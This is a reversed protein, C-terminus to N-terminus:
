FAAIGTQERGLTLAHIDETGEYTNVSEMNVLHRMINHQQLIGNGGLMDRAIRVVQLAQKCSNRKILNITWIPLTGADLLRTARLVAEKSISVTTQMDALKHQILQNAALPRGFQMRNMVYDHSRHWADEAAGLAGWAIGFRARNLCSFPGKLGEIDLRQEDPIEVNNMHINCSPITRLSLKGDIVSTSLGDMGPELIFGRIIDNEDKAWIILVDAINACGIWRKEGTIRWGSSTKVARTELGGPNSGHNPETLGFCGIFDGTELKPLYKQKQQESGYTKIPFMVLSSQISLVSRYGADVKDIEMASLGYKAFTDHSFLKSDGMAKPISRDFTGKEFDQVVRPSLFEQAFNRSRQRWKKEDESLQDEFLFPDKWAQNTM